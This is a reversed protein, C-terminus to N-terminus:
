DEYCELGGGGFLGTVRHTIIGEAGIKNSRKDFSGPKLSIV